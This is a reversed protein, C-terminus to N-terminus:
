FCNAVPIGAECSVARNADAILGREALPRVRKATDLGVTTIEITSPEKLENCEVAQSPVDIGDPTTWRV